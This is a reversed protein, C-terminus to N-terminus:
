EFIVNDKIRWVDDFVAQRYRNKELIELRRQCFFFSIQQKGDLVGCWVTCLYVDVGGGTSVDV